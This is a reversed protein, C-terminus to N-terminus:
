SNRKSSRRAILLSPSCNHFLLPGQAPSGVGVEWLSHTHPCSWAQAWEPISKFEMKDRHRNFLPHPLVFVSPQSTPGLIFCFTCTNMHQQHGCIWSEFKPPGVTFHYYSSWQNKKITLSSVLISLVLPNKGPSDKVLSLISHTCVIVETTGKSCEVSYSSNSKM